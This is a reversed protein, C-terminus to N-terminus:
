SSDDDAIESVFQKAKPPFRSLTKCFDQRLVRRHVSLVEVPSKYEYKLFAKLSDTRESFQISCESRDTLNIDSTTEIFWRYEM